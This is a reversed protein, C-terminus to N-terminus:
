VHNPLNRARDEKNAFSIETWYRQHHVFDTHTITM